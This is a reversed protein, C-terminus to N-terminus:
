HPSSIPDINFWPTSLTTITTTNSTTTSTTTIYKLTNTNEHGHQRGSYKVVPDRRMFTYFQIQKCSIQLNDM